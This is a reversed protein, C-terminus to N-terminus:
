DKPKTELPRDESLKVEIIEVIRENTFDKDFTSITIPQVIASAHGRSIWNISNKLQEATAQKPLDDENGDYTSALVLMYGALPSPYGALTFFSQDPRFLGEDDVYTHIPKGAVVGLRPGSGMFCRKDGDAKGNALYSQIVKYNNFDDDVETITRDFPNVLIARM